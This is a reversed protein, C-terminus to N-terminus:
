RVDAISMEDSLYDEKGVALAHCQGKGLGLDHVLSAEEEKQMAVIEVPSDKEFSGSGSHSAKMSWSCASAMSFRSPAMTM